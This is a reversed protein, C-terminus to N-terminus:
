NNNMKRQNKIIKISVTINAIIIILMILILTFEKLPMRVFYYDNFDRPKWLGKSYGELISCFVKYGDFTTGPVFANKLVYDEFERDEAWSFSGSWLIRMTKPDSFCVCFVVENDKGGKWYSKQAQITKEKDRNGYWYLTLPRLKSDLTGLYSALRDISDNVEMGYILSQRPEIVSDSNITITPNYREFLELEKAEKSTIKRMDYLGMTNSFYNIFPERITYTCIFRRLENRNWSYITVERGLSDRYIIPKQKWRSSFYNYTKETIEREEKAGNNLLYSATFERAHNTITDRIQENWDSYHKLEKVVKDVYRYDIPKQSFSLSFFIILTSIITPLFVIVYDVKKSIRKKALYFLCVLVLSITSAAVLYYFM